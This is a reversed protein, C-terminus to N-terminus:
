VNDWSWTQRNTLEAAGVQAMRPQIAGLKELRSPCHKAVCDAIKCEFCLRQRRAAGVATDTYGATRTM